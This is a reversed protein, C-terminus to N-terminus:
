YPKYSKEEVLDSGAAENIRRKIAARRDNEVYVTRALAVFGEGFDKRRECDRKGEEVDWLVANVAELEASLADIEPVGELERAAVKELLALEKRVNALKAADIRAAKVRLITLKDILEGASVPILIAM